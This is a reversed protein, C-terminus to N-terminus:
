SHILSNIMSARTSLVRAEKLNYIQKSLVRARELRMEVREWNELINAQSQHKILTPTFYKM